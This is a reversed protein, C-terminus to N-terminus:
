LASSGAKAPAPQRNSTSRGKYVQVCQRVFRHIGYAGEYKGSIALRARQQGSCPSDDGEMRIGPIARRLEDIERRFDSVDGEPADLHSGDDLMVTGDFPTFCSFRLEKLRSASHLADLAEPSAMEEDITLQETM